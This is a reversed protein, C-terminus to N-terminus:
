KNKIHETHSIKESSPEFIIQYYHSKNKDYILVLLNNKFETGEALYLNLFKYYIDNKDNGM